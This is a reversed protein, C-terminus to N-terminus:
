QRHCPGCCIAWRLCTTTMAATVRSLSKASWRWTGTRSATRSMGCGGTSLIAKSRAYPRDFQTSRARVLLSSRSQATVGLSLSVAFAVDRAGMRARQLSGSAVVADLFIVLRPESELELRGKGTRSPKTDGGEDKSCPNPTSRAGPLASAAVSPSHQKACRSLIKAAPIHTTATSTTQAIAFACGARKQRNRIAPTSQGSLLGDAQYIRSCVRMGGTMRMSQEIQRTLSWSSSSLGSGRATRHRDAPVPAAECYRRDGRRPLGGGRHRLCAAAGPRACRGLEEEWRGLLLDSGDEEFGIRVPTVAVARCCTCM